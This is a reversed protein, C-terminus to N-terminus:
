KAVERCIMPVTFIRWDIIFKSDCETCAIHHFTHRDLLELNIGQELDHVVKGYDFIHGDETVLVLNKGCKPCKTEIVRRYPIDNALM